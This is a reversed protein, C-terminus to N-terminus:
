VSKRKQYIVRNGRCVQDCRKCKSSVYDDIGCGLVDIAVTIGYASDDGVAAIEFPVCLTIRKQLLILHESLEGVYCLEPVSKKSICSGAYSRLRCKVIHQAHLCQPKSHLSTTVICKGKCLKQFALLTYLDVVRSEFGTRPMANCILLEMATITGYDGYSNAALLFCKRHHVLERYRLYHRVYSIRLCKDYM